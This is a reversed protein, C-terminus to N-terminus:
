FGFNLLGSEEGLFMTSSLSPEARFLPTLFIDFAINTSLFSM